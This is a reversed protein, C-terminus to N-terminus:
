GVGVKRYHGIARDAFNVAESNSFRKYSYDGIRESELDSNSRQKFDQAAMYIAFRALDEPYKYINVSKSTHSAATTGNVGRTVTLVNGSVSSVFMQESEVLLTHGASFPTGSSVTMSTAGSTISAVTAGSDDYPTASLGDGYGWSGVIQVSKRLEPFSYSGFTTIEVRTKPFTNYPQLNFDTGDTWTEDDFNGDQETDLKFTTVSLLDDILLTEGYCADFYRTDTKVYFHRDCYRDIWRSAGELIRLILADHSTGTEGLNLKVDAISAYCNSM